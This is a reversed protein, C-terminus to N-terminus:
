FDLIRKLEKVRNRSVTINMDQIKILYAGNFWATVETIENINVIYNRHCRFFKSPDLKSELKTLSQNYLYDKEKIRLFVERDKAYAFMLDSQEFFIYKEDIKYAIRNNNASETNSEHEKAEVTQIMRKVLDLKKRVDKESIPKLIYGVANVKFADLAYNDYATVYVIYPPDQMEKIIKGIEIGDMGPMEIDLLLVDPKNNTLMKLVQTGNNVPPMVNFDQIKSVIYTLEERVHEEDDAILINIM